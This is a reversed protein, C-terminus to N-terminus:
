KQRFNPVFSNHPLTCQDRLNVSHEGSSTKASPLRRGMNLPQLPANAKIQFSSTVYAKHRRFRPPVFDLLLATSDAITAKTLYIHVYPSLLFHLLYSHALLRSMKM